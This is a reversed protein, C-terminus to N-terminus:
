VTLAREASERLDRLYRVMEEAQARTRIETFVLPQVTRDGHDFRLVPVGQRVALELRLQPTVSWWPPQGSPPGLAASLM